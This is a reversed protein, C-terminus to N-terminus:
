SILLNGFKIFNTSGNNHSVLNERHYSDPLYNLEQGNGEECFGVM